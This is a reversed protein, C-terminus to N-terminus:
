TVAGLRVAARPDHAALVVLGPLAEGLAVIRRATELQAERAGTDPVIGRSLLEPDYTVDGVLLLPAKSGRRVLLSMSGVSHGPTPLLVLSGDGYIDFVGGFPALVEDESPEFVVPRFDVGAPLHRALVGHLEPQKEGLLAHEAASVLVPVGLLQALGGAHDQHLHSIAALALSSVPTGADDLQAALNQEPAVRFRAQRRYIIGLIGGPYYDPETVSALDQGSDFLVAGKAHEVVFVNVPLWPSWSRSTFTWWLMPTGTGAINKPRVQVEGTSFVRIRGV